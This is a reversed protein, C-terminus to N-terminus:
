SPKTFAADMQDLISTRVSQRVEGWVLTMGCRLGHAHAYGLVIHLPMEELVYEATHGTM